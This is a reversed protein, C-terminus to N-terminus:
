EVAIDRIVVEDGSIVRYSSEGCFPCVGDREVLDFIKGCRNCTGLGAIEVINLEASAFLEYQEQIADWCANMYEPMVGTLAGIELTLTHIKKVQNERAIEDVQDVINLMVGMEHM